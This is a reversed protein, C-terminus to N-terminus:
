KSRRDWTAVLGVHSIHGMAPAVFDVAKMAQAMRASQEARYEAEAKAEMEALQKDTM